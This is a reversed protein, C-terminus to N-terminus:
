AAGEARRLTELLEAHLEPTAAAIFEPNDLDFPGGQLNSVIGGAEEVLLIGAAADWAKVSTTWYADLRGAAVYCLNLACSGLRRISQCQELVELFRIVELSDRTIKPSFSAAVMAQDLRRCTSPRISQRNCTAGDGATASYCEKLIPDFVTGAVTRGSTRLAISVAFSQLGHVYNATGDLPDVIWCFADLATARPRGDASTPEDEEGLFEHDPFAGLLIRRIEAQSAVDAETVLDRPAKERASIRHQWDLLIHGGARAAAECTELYPNM